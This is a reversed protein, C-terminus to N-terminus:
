GLLADIESHQKTRPKARRQRQGEAQCTVCARSKTHRLTHGLDCAKGKFTAAGSHLAAIRAPHSPQAM